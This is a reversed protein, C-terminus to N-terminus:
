RADRGLQCIAEKDSDIAGRTHFRAFCRADSRRLSIQCSMQEAGNLQENKIGFRCEYARVVM